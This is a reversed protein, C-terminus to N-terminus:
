LKPLDVLHPHHHIEIAVVSAICEDSEVVLLLGLGCHLVEVIIFDPICVSM